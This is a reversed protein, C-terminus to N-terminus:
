SLGLEFFGKMKGTFKEAKEMADSSDEPSFSTEPYYGAEECPKIIHTM